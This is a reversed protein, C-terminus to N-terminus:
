HTYDCEGDDREYKVVYRAAFEALCMSQLERPRHQYKDILSKQFVNTDSDDLQSLSENRKLVAIRENKPNTNVFM